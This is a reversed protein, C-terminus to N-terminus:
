GKIGGKQSLLAGKRELSEISSPFFSVFRINFVRIRVSGIGENTEDMWTCSWTIIQSSGFKKMTWNVFVTDIEEEKKENELM